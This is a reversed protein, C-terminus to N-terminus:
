YEDDDDNNNNNNADDDDDDDHQDAGGMSGGAASSMSLDIRNMSRRNRTSTVANDKMMDVSELVHCWINFMNNLKRFEKLDRHHGKILEHDSENPLSNVSKKKVFLSEIMQLEEKKKIANIWFPIASINYIDCEEELALNEETVNGEDNTM